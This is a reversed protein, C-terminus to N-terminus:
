GVLEGRERGGRFQVTWGGDRVGVKKCDWDMRAQEKTEGDLGWVAAALVNEKWLPVGAKKTQWMAALLFLLDLVCILMPVVIFGWSVAIKVEYTSHRGSITRNNSNRIASSMDHAINKFTSNLSPSNYLAQTSPSTYHTMDGLAAVNPEKHPETRFLSHLYAITSDIAPQSVNFNASPSLGTDQSSATQNTSNFFIATQNASLQLQFDARPLYYEHGIPNWNDTGINTSSRNQQEESLTARWSTSVRESHPQLITESYKGNELSSFYTNMCLQLGCEVAEVPTEAWTTKNALYQDAAKIMAFAFLLTQSHQFNITANPLSTGIAIMGEKQYSSETEQNTITLPIHPELSYKLNDEPSISVAANPDDEDVVDSPHSVNLYSSINYCSSCVALSVHLPWTCNSGLCNYEPEQRFDMNWLGNTIAAVMQSDPTTETGHYGNHDTTSENGIVLVGSEREEGKSYGQAYPISAGNADEHNEAPYNVLLQLFPDFTLSLITLAAGLSALKSSINKAQPDM